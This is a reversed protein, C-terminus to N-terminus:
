TTAPEPEPATPAAKHKAYDEDSMGFLAAAAKEEETLATTVPVPRAGGGGPGPTPTSGVLYTKAELFATVAEEHGTVQGDDGVTVRIEQGDKQVTFDGAQMLAYVADSDVAGQKAAASIIQARMLMKNARDTADKAAQQAADREEQAKEADKQLKEAQSLSAAELEDAKKARAQLAAIDDDSLRDKRDRALRDSVIRDLEEQTFTKPPPDTKPPPEEAGAIRQWGRVRLALIYAIDSIRRAAAGTAALMRATRKRM